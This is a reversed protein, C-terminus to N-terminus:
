EVEAKSEFNEGAVLEPIDDDDEDDDDKKEGDEGKEKQMSQYSEALKRLSALSDPGLQNLIGPVLETLEKDEGHGYIAFTNAPVSAHVKPASFHIVNGDSKFMNVEEIAQIPQVNLKKLATQLKKDDTGAARHVKKVKRRPTGKGSAVKAQTAAGTTPTASAAGGSTASSPSADTSSTGNPNGSINEQTVSMGTQNKCDESFNIQANNVLTVDACQYLGGAEHNNTVVQISAKTGDSVNLGAPVAVSGLCFDGLGSVQLQQQAVISFGDGPNDGIAMYVAVNTQPHEMHLQIPGGGIPFDTRQQQVDNFGGCPFNGETDDTFGRAAPFKLQFHALSLPLFALTLISNSLM